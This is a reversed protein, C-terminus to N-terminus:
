EDPSFVYGHLFPFSEVRYEVLKKLERSWSAALRSKHPSAYVLRACDNLYGSEADVGLHNCIASLNATTAHVFNEHKIELFDEESIRSIIGKNISCLSFYYEAAHELSINNRKAITAINDYPNRVIHIFKMRSSSPRLLRDLLWPRRGLALTTGEGQKDGVAKLCRFKGQWQGPVDYSYHGSIRRGRRRRSNAIILSYIQPLSFRALVYRMFHQEHSCVVNPHADLFSGIISHGSRQYGIFLFTTKIDKLVGRQIPLMSFSYVHEFLLQFLVVLKNQEPLKVANGSIM